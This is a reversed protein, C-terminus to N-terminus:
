ELAQLGLARRWQVKIEPLFATYVEAGFCWVDMPEALLM